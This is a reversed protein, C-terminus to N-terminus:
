KLFQKYAVRYMSIFVDTTLPLTSSFADKRELEVFLSQLHVSIVSKGNLSRLKLWFHCYENKTPDKFRTLVSLRYWRILATRINTFFKHTFFTHQPLVKVSICSRSRLSTPSFKNFQLYDGVYLFTKVLM